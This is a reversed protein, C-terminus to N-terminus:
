RTRGKPQKEGIMADNAAEFEKRLEKDKACQPVYRMLFEFGVKFSIPPVARAIAKLAQLLCERVTNM